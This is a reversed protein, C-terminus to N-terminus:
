FIPGLFNAFYSVGIFVDPHGFIAATLFSNGEKKKEKKAKVKIACKKVKGKSFVASTQSHTHKWSRYCDFTTNIATYIFIIDHNVLFKQLPIFRQYFNALCFARELL